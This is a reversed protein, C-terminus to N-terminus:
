MTIAQPKPICSLANSCQDTGGGGGGGVVTCTHKTSIDQNDLCYLLISIKFFSCFFEIQMM